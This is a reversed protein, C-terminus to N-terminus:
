PTRCDLSVTGPEAPLDTKLIGHFSVMARVDAGGRALELVCQGGLCYGIAAIRDPIVAEHERLLELWALIRSRLARANGWIPAVFPGITQEDESYAKDGYVDVALAVYGEAALRVAIPPIHGGL